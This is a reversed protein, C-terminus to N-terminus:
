PRHHALAKMVVPRCLTGKATIAGAIESIPRSLLHVERPRQWAPFVELMREVDALLSQGSTASESQIADLFLSVHRDQPMLVAHRISPHLGLRQELPGPFFKLGNSLTIRDDSRGLIRYQGDGPDVEACDGTQLWGGRIKNATAEDDQWYGIMVGPGAVELCGADDIRTQCGSVPVGVVGARANWPSASCVVPSAETLGYGQVVTIGAQCYDTFLEATMAAGGCGLLRLSRTAPTDFAEDRLRSALSPVTNILTPTVETALMEWGHWGQGIALTGGRILWTLLDCTRAYAHWLPLVTLRVDDPAQPVAALKGEANSFLNRRSLLVGRPTGTSGSTFLILAPHDHPFKAEQDIQESVWADSPSVADFECESEFLRGDVLRLLTEREHQASKPDLPVEIVGKALAALAVIVGWRTNGCAHVLRDGSSFGQRDLLRITALVRAFLDRWTHHVIRGDSDVGVLAPRTISEGARQKLISLCKMAHHSIV